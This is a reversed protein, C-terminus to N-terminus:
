SKRKLAERYLKTMVGLSNAIEPDPCIEVPWGIQDQTIYPGVHYATGGSLAVRNALQDAFRTAVDQSIREALLPVEIDYIPQVDIFVGKAVEIPKPQGLPIGAVSRLGIDVRSADVGKLKTGAWSQVARVVVGFGGRELTYAIDRTYKQGIFLAENVTEYGIDALITSGNGDVGDRRLM